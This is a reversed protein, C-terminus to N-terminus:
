VFRRDTITNLKITSPFFYNWYLIYVRWYCCMKKQGQLWYSFCSTRSLTLGLVVISGFSVQFGETFNNERHLLFASESPFFAMQVCKGFQGQAPMYRQHCNHTWSWGFCCLLLWPMGRIRRRYVLTQLAVSLIHVRGIPANAYWFPFHQWRLLLLVNAHLSTVLCLTNVRVLPWKISVILCHSDLWLFSNYQSLCQWLNM